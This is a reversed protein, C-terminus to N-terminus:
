ARGGAMALIRATLSADEYAEPGLACELAPVTAALERCRAEARAPLASPLVTDPSPDWPWEPGGAGPPADRFPGLQGAAIAAAADAAPLRRLVAPGPHGDIRPFVIAALRGGPTAQVALVACLQAPSLTWPLRPREPGHREPRRRGERLTLRHRFRAAELRTPLGPFWAASDDLLKVITPLGRVTPPPEGGPIVVRDNAVFRVGPTRLLHVLLTTKGAGKPGAIAVVREGVAAAAAHLVLAGERWAHAMALERVVRMLLDRVALSEGSALLEINGGPGLTCFGGRDRDFVVRDPGPATWRPLRLIGSDLWFCAVTEGDAVPGRRLADAYAAPDTVLRVTWAPCGDRAAEFSPALFDRLWELHGADESEVRVVLGGYRLDLRAGAGTDVLGVSAV